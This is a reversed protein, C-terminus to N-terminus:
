PPTSLSAPVNTLLPLMVNAETLGTEVVPLSRGVSLYRQVIMDFGPLRTDVLVTRPQRSHSVRLWRDPTTRISICLPKDAKLTNHQIVDDLLIQLTLPPLQASECAPDIQVSTLLATKYRITLLRIYSRVFQVEEALTVVPYQNAQLMYRYVKAMEDVFEEAQEPEDTILSSISNLANFLFHPNIQQKLSDLQRQLVVSKLQEKETQNEQWRAYTYQIGLVFCLLMDFVLGLLVIARVTGWTFPRDFVPFLSYAWVDFVALGVTLTTAVLLAVVNRLRAQRVNPYWWFVSKVAVTLIVLSLVYLGFVLLTGWGFVVPDTFYREHLFLYNGAPFLIPMMLTHYWLERRTFLRKPQLWNMMM